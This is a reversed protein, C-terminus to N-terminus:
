AEPAIARVRATQRGAITVNELARAILRQQNTEIHGSVRQIYM